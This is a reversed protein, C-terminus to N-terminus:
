ITEVTDPTRLRKILEAGAEVAFALREETPPCSGKRFWLKQLELHHVEKIGAKELTHRACNLPCGDIAVIHGAREAKNMLPRVRGGIGALCSMEGFKKQSLMRATRDALEGADSCGSCAYIVVNKVGKDGEDLDIESMAIKELEQAQRSGCRFCAIEAKAAGM